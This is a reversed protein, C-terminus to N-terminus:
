KKYVYDGFGPAQDNFYTASSTIANLFDMMKASAIPDYSMQTGGATGEVRWSFEARFPAASEYYAGNYTNYLITIYGNYAVGLFKVQIKSWSWTYFDAKPDSAPVSLPTGSTIGEISNFDSFYKDVDDCTTPAWNTPVDSSAQQSNGLLTFITSNTKVSSIDTIIL